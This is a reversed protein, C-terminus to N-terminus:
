VEKVPPPDSLRLCTMCTVDARKSTVSAQGEIEGCVSRGCAAASRLHVADLATRRSYWPRAVPSGARPGPECLTCRCGFYRHGCRGCTPREDLVESWEVSLM